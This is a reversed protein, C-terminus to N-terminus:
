DLPIEQLIGSVKFPEIPTWTAIKNSMAPKGSPSTALTIHPVKNSVELPTEVKVAVVDKTSGIGVVELDLTQGLLGRMKTPLPGMSVTMHHCFIKWDDIDKFHEHLVSVLHNASESDLIVGSYSITSKGLMMNFKETEIREKENALDKGRFGQKALEGGDTTIQYKVFQKIFRKGMGMLRGFNSVVSGDLHVGGMRVKFEYATNPEGKRFFDILFKVQKGQQKTFKLRSILKKDINQDTEDRLVSAIVAVPIKSEIVEGDSKLTHFVWSMLDYKRLLEIFHKVSKAQKIGKLFEDQIREQALPKGDGSVISNDKKIARDIGEDVDSGVRAAFRMARMIRLKDEDFRDEANGVTKVVGNELDEIGGVLDVVEGTDLDYFLANITLDRRLVDKDITSFKVEDPRRGKGIDERFTAIEYTDDETVVNVVAFQEGSEVTNYMPLLEKVKDPVADTALDFDKPRRGMLTDRVAGGVLYLKFGNDKFIKHINQISAPTEIDMKVRIEKGEKLIKRIMDKM